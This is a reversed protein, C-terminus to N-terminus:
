ARAAASADGGHRAPRAHAAATTCPPPFYFRNKFLMAHGQKEAIIRTEFRTEFVGLFKLRSPRAEIKKGDCTVKSVLNVSTEAM